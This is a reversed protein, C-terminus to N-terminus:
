FQHTMEMKNKIKIGKINKRPKYINKIIQGNKGEKTM